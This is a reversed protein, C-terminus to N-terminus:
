VVSKRDKGFEAPQFQYPGLQFWAQAGRNNTGLPSVVLLLTVISVVYIAPAMDRLVQYDVLTLVVLVVVGVFVFMAQRKLFYGPDLGASAQRARTSSYIMLMGLATIAAVAALLVVDVHRFTTSRRASRLDLSLQTM